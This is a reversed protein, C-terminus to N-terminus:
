HFCFHLLPWALSVENTWDPDGHKPTWEVTQGKLINAMHFHKKLEAEHTGGPHQRIYRSEHSSFNLLRAQLRQQTLDGGAPKAAKGKKPAKQAAPQVEAPPPADPSWVAAGALLSALSSKVPDFRDQEQWPQLAGAPGAQPAAAEVKIEAQAEPSPAKAPKAKKTDPGTLDFVHTRKGAAAM